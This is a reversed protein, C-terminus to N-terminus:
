VDAAEYIDRVVLHELARFFMPEDVASTNTLYVVVLHRDLDGVALSVVGTHGVVRAGAPAGYWAADTNLGRGWSLELGQWFEDEIDERIPTCFHRIAEVSILRQGQWVGGAVLCELPRALENAPGWVESGPWGDDDPYDMREMAGNGHRTFLVQLEEAAAGGRDLRGDWFLASTDMRLPAMVEERVVAHYNRGTVRQIVEALVLWSAFVNYAARRGPPAVIPWECVADLTSERGIQRPDDHEAYVVTHALLHEITVDRKGGQNFEPLVDGIRTATSVEGRDWLRALAMVTLLKSSCAWYMLHTNTLPDGPQYEGFAEQWVPQGGQSVYIQVGLRRGDKLAETLRTRAKHWTGNAPAIM